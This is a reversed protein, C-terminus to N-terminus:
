GDSGYHIEGYAQARVSGYTDSEYYFWVEAAGVLRAIPTVTQLRKPAVYQLLSIMNGQIARNTSRTADERVKGNMSISSEALTGSTSYGHLNTILKVESGPLPLFSFVWDNNNNWQKWIGQPATDNTATYYPNLKALIRRSGPVALWRRDSVDIPGQKTSIRNMVCMSAVYRRNAAGQSIGEQKQLGTTYQILTMTGVNDYLDVDYVTNTNHDTSATLDDCALSVGAVPISKIGQGPIYIESGSKRGYFLKPCHNATSNLVINLLAPKSNQEAQTWTAGTDATTKTSCGDPFMSGIATNWRRTSLSYDKAATGMFVLAYENGDTLQQATTLSKRVWTDAVAGSALAGIDYLETGPVKDLQAGYLYVEGLALYANVGNRDTFKFRIHRYSVANNLHFRKAVGAGPDTEATFTADGTIETWDADTQPAPGALNSGWITFAKPFARVDASANNFSVFDFMNLRIGNGVGTDFTLIIPAIGTPAANSRTGNDAAVSADFAEFAEFGAGAEANAGANDFLGVVNPSPANNATMTTSLDTTNGNYRGNPEYGTYAVAHLKCNIDGAVAAATVYLSFSDLAYMAEAPFFFAAGKAASNLQVAADGTTQMYAPPVFPIGGPPLLAGHVLDVAELAAIDANQAADQNIRTRSISM